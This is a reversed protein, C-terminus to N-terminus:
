AGLRSGVFDRNGILFEGIGLARRGEVQLTRLLLVGDGTVVGAGGSVAVVDGQAAAYPPRSTSAVADVIKLYRGKWRTFAGPWPHYARAQRAIYGADRHWDIEGDERSLRGTETARSEDQARPTIEGATWGPLVSLLLEAGAEFLRLTLAETTEDDGIATERQAVIPGSDMGEGVQMITVGTVEDGALIASAVPSAGRYRPLLSPHVNLAGLPPSKFAEAPLYLGYAAVVVLDPSLDALERRAADDRRLSAPQYVALGRELAAQKVPSPTLRGGRGAPRDPQTYVGVVRYGGDVLAALVPVAFAPTGM